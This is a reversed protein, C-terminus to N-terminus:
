KDLFKKTEIKYDEVNPQNFTNLNLLYGLYMMEIMKFQLYAGLEHEDVQDLIVETFPIHNNVLAQKTGKFIAKMITKTSKGEIMPILNKLKPDQPVKPATVKHEGWILTFFKDRPGGFYLQAMSHLDTSGISVTPTIGAHVVENELDHEKGISEGMLQRYWKGISELHPNFFFNDNINRGDKNHLYLLTASIAANNHVIDRKIGNKRSELAGAVLAKIDIDACALPFLGVSSFVSYRGGVKEEHVLLTLGLKEASNWLKSGPMSTIVVREKFDPMSEILIQLNSMTETTGGSKSIANLIVEQPDKITKLFQSLKLIHRPDNTDAFLIKPFRNPEINDTYGKLADYIAKTGLNSGGIGVVVVYKLKATVKQKKLELITKLVEKDAPANITSENQDYGGKTTVDKLKQSYESLHKYIATELIQDTHIKSNDYLFKM